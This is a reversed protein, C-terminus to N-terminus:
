YNEVVEDAYISKVAVRQGTILLILSLKVLTM